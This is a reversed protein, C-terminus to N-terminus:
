GFHTGGENLLSTIRKIYCCTLSTLGGGSWHSVMEEYKELDRQLMDNCDRILSIDM